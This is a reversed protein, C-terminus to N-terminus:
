PVRSFTDLNSISALFFDRLERVSTYRYPATKGDLVVGRSRRLCLPKMVPSNGRASPQVSLWGEFVDSQTTEIRFAIRGRLTQVLAVSGTPGEVSFEIGRETPHPEGLSGAVRSPSDTEVPVTGGDGKGASPASLSSGLADHLEQFLRDVALHLSTPVEPREAPVGSDASSGFARVITKRLLRM